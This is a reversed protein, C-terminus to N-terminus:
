CFGSGGGIGGSYLGSSSTLCAAIGAMGAGRPLPLSIMAGAAVRYYTPIHLVSDFDLGILVSHVHCLHGGQWAADRLSLSAALRQFIDLLCDRSVDRAQLFM